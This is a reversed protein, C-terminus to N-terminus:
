KQMENGIGCRTKTNLTWPPAFKLPRGQRIKRKRIRDLDRWKVTEGEWQVFMKHGSCEKINWDRMECSSHDSNRKVNFILFCTITSEWTQEGTWRKRCEWHSGVYCTHSGNDEMWTSWVWCCVFLCVQFLVCHAGVSASEYLHKQGRSGQGGDPRNLTDLHWNPEGRMSEQGWKKWTSRKWNEWKKAQQPLHLGVENRASKKKYFPM